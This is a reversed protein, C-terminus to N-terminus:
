IKYGLSKAKAFSRDSASFKDLYGQALGLLYFGKGSKPNAKVYDQAKLLASEYEGEDLENQIQNLVDGANITKAKPKNAKTIGAEVEGHDIDVQYLVLWPRDKKLREVYNSFEKFEQNSLQDAPLKFAMNIHYRGNKEHGTQSLEFWDNRKDLGTNLLVPKAGNVPADIVVNLKLSLGKPLVFDHIRDKADPLEMLGTFLKVLQLPTTLYSIKGDEVVDNSSIFRANLEFPVTLDLPSTVNFDVLEIEPYLDKLLGVALSKKDDTNIWLSRFYDEYLGSFTFNIAGNAKQKDLKSFHIDIIAENEEASLMPTGKIFGGQGNVILAKRGEIMRSFGPFLSQEGTTDVWIAPSDTTEPLYTIMHDFPLNPILPNTRVSGETSILAPHADIGLERLLSVMLVTQDKCDGYQSTLVKAASHPEFGGRDVHAFVYRINKQVFDYVAKIKEERSSSNAAINNAIKRIQDNAIMKDDFLESAWSDIVSWDEATSYELYPVLDVLAPMGHEITVSPLRRYRWQHETFGDRRSNSYAAGQGLQTFKLKKKSPVQVSFLSELVPDVRYGKESQSDTPAHFLHGGSTVGAIRAKLPTFDIQYEIVSNETVAPLSFVLDRGDQYFDSRANNQIQVADKDLELVKGEATLVRAFDLKADTFYSNFGISIQSFDRAAERSNLKIARYLVKHTQGELDLKVQRNQLLVVAGAQNHGSRNALETLPPAIREAAYLNVPLQLLLSVVVSFKPNLLKM